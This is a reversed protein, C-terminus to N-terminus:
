GRFGRKSEYIFLYYITIGIFVVFGAMIYYLAFDKKQQERPLGSVESSIYDTISVAQAEKVFFNLPSSKKVVKGTSDNVVAYIEHEEETLSEKFNYQWNGYEDTSVTVVMPLDSYIYLTIVSNPEAEGSISYGEVAEGAENILNIVNNVTLDKSEEGETKPQGLTKNEMIAKEIPALPKVLQGEGSPNYNNKFEDGDLYGDGDSDPNKPDSGLREEMDDPLGDQDSDIMLAVSATQILNEAEDLALSEKAALIKLGAEKRKLPMINKALDLKEELQGLGISEGALGLMRDKVEKFELQKAVINGLHREKLANQCQFEELGRCELKASYKNFMYNECEEEIEIGAELCESPGYKKFMVQDCEGRTKAGAEQCEVSMYKKQMYRECATETELGRELCEQPMYAKMMVQDCKDFDTVGAKQCEIPLEEDPIEERSGYKEFMFKKCAEETTIGAQKCIPPGYLKFTYKACDQSNYIGAQLCEKPANKKFLIKECEKEDAVNAARCDEPMRMLRLYKDCEEMSSINAEQCEQPMRKIYMVKDCAEKSAVGAEQCEKPLSMNFVIKECEKQNIVGKNQCEQPLGKAAEYYYDNKIEKNVDEKNVMFDKVKNRLFYDCEEKSKINKEQCEAPLTKEKMFKECDEVKTIGKNKCEPTLKAQEGMFRYCDAETKLGARQCETPMVYRNLYKRCEEKDSIAKDRCEKPVALYEQCKAIDLIGRDRCEPSLLLYKECEEKNTIRKNRCVPSVQMFEQCKAKDYINFAKCESLIQEVLKVTATPAPEYKNITPATNNIQVGQNIMLETGSYIEKEPYVNVTKDATEVSNYVRVEAPVSGDVNTSDYIVNEKLLSDSDLLNDTKVEVTKIDNYIYVDDKIINDENIFVDDRIINDENVYVDDRIISDTKDTDTTFLSSDQAFLFIASPAILFLSFIVLVALFLGFNKIAKFKKM